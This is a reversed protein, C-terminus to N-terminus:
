QTFVSVSDTISDTVTTRTLETISSVGPGLYSESFQTSMGPTVQSYNVGPGPTGQWTINTGSMTYSTGTSYETILYAEAVTTTSETRSTMTGRTFNPTVNAFAPHSVGHLAGFLVSWLILKRM